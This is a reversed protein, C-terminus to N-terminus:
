DLWHRSMQLAVLREVIEQGSQCRTEWCGQIIDGGVLADVAPFKGEAYLRGVEDEELGEFPEHGTMIEYIASGLAFLDTSVTPPTTVPARPLFSRVGEMAEGDLSGYTGQFDCLKVDLRDDLLLNNTHIDCHIVGKSHIFAVAEAAQLSWKLRLKTTIGSADPKELYSRVSGGNMRELRLGEDTRGLYKVIRDHDGLASLIQAEVSLIKGDEPCLPYKLVTGDNVLGIRCSNGGGIVKVVEPPDVPHIIIHRRMPDWPDQHYKGDDPIQSVDPLRLSKSM